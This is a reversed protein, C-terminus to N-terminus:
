RAVSLRLIALPKKGMEIEYDPHVSDSGRLGPPKMRYRAEIMWRDGADFAVIRYLIEEFGPRERLASLLLAQADPPLIVETDPGNTADAM